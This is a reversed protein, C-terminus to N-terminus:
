QSSVAAIMDICSNGPNSGRISTMSISILDIEVKMETVLSRKQRKQSPHETGVTQQVCFNGSKLIQTVPIVVNLVTEYRGLVM